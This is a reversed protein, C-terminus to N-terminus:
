TDNLRALAETVQLVMEDWAERRRYIELYDEELYRVVLDEYAAYDIAFAAEIAKAVTAGHIEGPRIADPYRAFLLDLDFVDRPETQSREALATVKQRVAAPPLFRQVRIARLGMARGISPALTALEYEPDIRQRASFEIKTNLRGAPAEVSFKWRRTTATQKPKTPPSMSVGALELIDRFIRSALVKDVREELAWDGPDVLDLDIHQSLRPSAYFFRLNAGGKLVYRSPDVTAALVQLFALHLLEVARAGGRATALVTRDVMGIAHSVNSAATLTDIDISISPM